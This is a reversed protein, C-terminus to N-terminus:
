AMKRRLRYKIIAVTVIRWGVTGANLPVQRYHRLYFLSPM